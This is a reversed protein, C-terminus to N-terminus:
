RKRLYVYYAGSGGHRLHAEVVQLVAPGIPPLRLWSPVQQRLVGSRQLPPAHDTKPKGKGTIVLLLRLGATQANLVFRILEPHAEALTMGHLDITADPSLKGRAMKQHTKADMNLAAPKPAASSSTLDSKASRSIAREGLRFSTLHFPDALVASETDRNAPAVIPARKNVLGQPRSPHMAKATRAVALWLETEEPHLVRRRL